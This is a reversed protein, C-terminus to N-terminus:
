VEDEAPQDARLLAELKKIARMWLMQAAPRSRGMRQAVADFPLRELNRLVIVERYDPPLRDLATALEFQEDRRQLERSPSEGRASPEFAPASTADNRPALRVERRAQRKATVGYRRVFDAANHQLIRRLWAWWQANTQGDFRRWDRHVELLTQQVIDSADVKAQLWSEVQAKALVALYPRCRAFLEDRRREDGQRAAALLDVVSPDPPCANPPDAM